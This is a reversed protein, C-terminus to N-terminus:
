GAGWLSQALLPVANGSPLPMGGAYWYEAAGYALATLATSFVFTTGAFANNYAVVLGTTPTGYSSAITTWGAPVVFPGIAGQMAVAVVVANGSLVAPDFTITPNAGISAVSVTQRPAAGVEQGTIQVMAATCGTANDGTYNVTLAVSTPTSAVDGDWVRLSSGAGQPNVAVIQTWTLNGAGGASGVVTGSAHAALVLLSSSAPLFVPTMSYAAVNATAGIQSSAKTIAIAM